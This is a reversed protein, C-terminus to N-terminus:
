VTGGASYLSSYENYGEQIMQRLEGVSLDDIKKGSADITKSLPTFLESNWNLVTGIEASASMLDIETQTLDNAM